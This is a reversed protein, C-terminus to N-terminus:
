IGIQKYRALDSKIPEAEKLTYQPLLYEKYPRIADSSKCRQHSSGTGEGPPFYEYALMQNTRERLGDKHAVTALNSSPLTARYPRGFTLLFVMNNTFTLCIFASVFCVVNECHPPSYERGSHGHYFEHNRGFCVRVRLRCFLNHFSFCYARYQM